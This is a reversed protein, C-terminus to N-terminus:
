KRLQQRLDNLEAQLQRIQSEAALRAQREQEKALREQERAIQEAEKAAREQEKAAREQEKAAREQEKAAREQEKASREQEKALREQEKASREQEKALREQEKASRERETERRQIEEGTLVREGSILDTLILHEKRAGIRVGLVESLLQNNKARMAIPNGQQFRFGQLRPKLYESLPDFLFLEKVGIAGYTKPKITQDKRATSLSTIEFVVDPVRKEEWTKFTRRDKQLCDMVLFVDPVVYRRPVGEVYYLLMDSGVYVKQGQYRHMLIDRLRIIENIHWDTEGMPKGDSEPYVIEIGTSVSAM